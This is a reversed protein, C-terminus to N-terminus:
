APTPNYTCSHHSGHLTQSLPLEQPESGQELGGKGARSVRGRCGERTHPPPTLVRSPTRILNRGGQRWGAM